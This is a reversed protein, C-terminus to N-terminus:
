GVRRASLIPTYNAGKEIDRSVGSSQYAQVDIFDGAVMPYADAVAIERHTLAGTARGNAIAVFTAGANLRVGVQRDGTAHATFGVAAVVKYYGPTQITLRNPNGPDWMNDTDVIETDFNITTSFGHPIGQASGNFTIRAMPPTELEDLRPGHLDLLDHADKVGQEIRNLEGATLDPLADDAWLTMQFPM